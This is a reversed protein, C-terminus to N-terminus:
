VRMCRAKFSTVHHITYVSRASAAATEHPVLRTLATLVGSRYINLFVNLFFRTMSDCALASLFIASYLRSWCGAYKHCDCEHDSIHSLPQSTCHSCSLDWFLVRPYETCLPALLPCMLLLIVAIMSIPPSGSLLLAGFESFWRSGKRSFPIIMRTSPQASTWLSLGTMHRVFLSCEACLRRAIIKGISLSVYM